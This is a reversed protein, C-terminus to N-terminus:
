PRRKFINITSYSFLFFIALHVVLFWYKIEIIFFLIMLLVSLFFMVHISRKSQQWGTLIFSQSKIDKVGSIRCDLKIDGKFNGVFLKMSYEDKKNLLIPDFIIKDVEKQYTIELNEPDKEYVSEAIINSGEGFSFSLPREYDRKEIQTNGTNSIRLIILQLDDVIKDEYLIAIKDKIESDISLLATNIITWYSLEKRKTQYIVIVVSLVAIIAGIFQWLPDRIIEAM